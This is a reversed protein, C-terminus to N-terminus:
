GRPVPPDSSVRRARPSDGPAAGGDSDAAIPQTPARRRPPEIEGSGDASRAGAATAEAARDAMAHDPFARAIAAAVTPEGLLERGRMTLSHIRERRDTAGPVYEVLERVRLDELAISIASKSTAVGATHMAIWERIAGQNLSRGDRLTHLIARWLAQEAVERALKERQITPELEAFFGDLYATLSDAFGRHWSGPEAVRRLQRARAHFRALTETQRRVVCEGLFHAIPRLDDPTARVTLADLLTEITPMVREM